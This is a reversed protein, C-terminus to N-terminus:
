KSFYRLKCKTLDVFPRNTVQSEDGYCIKKQWYLLIVKETYVKYEGLSGEFGELGFEGLCRLFM